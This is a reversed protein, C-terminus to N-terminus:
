ASAAKFARSRYFLFEEFLWDHFSELNERSWNLKLEDYSSVSSDWKKAYFDINRDKWIHYTDDPRVFIKPLSHKPTSNKSVSTEIYVVFENDPTLEKDFFPEILRPRKIQDAQVKM